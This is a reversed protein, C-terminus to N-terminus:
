KRVFALCDMKLISVYLQYLMATRIAERMKTDEWIKVDDQFECTTQKAAKPDRKVPYERATKAKM